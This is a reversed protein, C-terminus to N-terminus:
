IHKEKKQSYSKVGAYAASLGILLLMGGGVPVENGPNSNGAAGHTDPPDPPSQPFLPMVSLLCILCFTFKRLTKRINKM